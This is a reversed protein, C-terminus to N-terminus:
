SFAAGAAPLEPHGRAGSNVKLTRLELKGNFAPCLIDLTAHWHHNVFSEHALRKEFRLSADAARM